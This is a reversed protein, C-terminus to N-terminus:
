GYVGLKRLAKEAKWRVEADKDATAQKLGALVVESKCALKGLSRCAARRVMVAPDALLGVAQEAYRPDIGDIRGLSNVAEMRVWEDPDALCDAIVRASRKADSPREWFWRLAALKVLVSEHKLAQVFLKVPSKKARDPLGIQLSRSEFGPYSLQLALTEVIDALEEVEM